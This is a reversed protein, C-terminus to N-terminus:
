AWFGTKCATRWISLAALRFRDSASRHDRTLPRFPFATLCRKFRQWTRLQGRLQSHSTKDPYAVPPRKGGPLCPLAAIWSGPSRGDATDVRCVDTPTYRHIVWFVYLRKTRARAPSLRCTLRPRKHEIEQFGRDIIGRGILAGLDARDIDHQQRRACQDPDPRQNGQRPPRRQEAGGEESIYEAQAMGDIGVVDGGDVVDHALQHLFALPRIRDAQEEREAMRQGDRKRDRRDRRRRKCQLAAKGLELFDAADNAGAGRRKEKEGDGGDIEDDQAIDPFTKEAGAAALRDLLLLQVQQQGAAAQEGADEPRQEAHHRM